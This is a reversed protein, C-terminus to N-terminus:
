LTVSASSQPSQAALLAEDRELRKKRMAPYYFLMVLVPLVSLASVVFAPAYSGSHLYITSSFMPYIVSGLANFIPVVGLIAGSHETGFADVLLVSAVGQACGFCLTMVCVNGIYLSGGSVTLLLNAALNACEAVWLVKIVGFRDSAIPGTLRIVASCIGTLSVCLIAKEYSLGKDMGLTVIIPSLMQFGGLAFFKIVCVTWFEYCRSAELLTYQRQPKVAASSSGTELLGPAPDHIVLGVLWIVACFLIGVVRFTGLLSFTQLLFKIVPSLITSGIGLGSLALGVAFGRRKPYWKIICNFCASYALGTGLGFCLTYTGYLLAPNCEKTVLSSLSGGLLYLAGGLLAAIRPGKADQLIGGFITGVTYASTMLAGIMTVIRLDCQYYELVAPQFISWIHIIGITLMGLVCCVSMLLVTKKQSM